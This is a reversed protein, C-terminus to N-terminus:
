SGKHINFWRGCFACKVDGSPSVDASAGLPAGCRPCTYGSVTQAQAPPSATTPPTPTARGTLGSIGGYGGVLVFMIAIFSGVIRFFLPPSSREGFPASWLFILVTVGIGAFALGMVSTVIRTGATPNRTSNDKWPDQSM